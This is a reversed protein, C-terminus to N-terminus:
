PETKPVPHSKKKNKSNRENKKKLPSKEVAVNTKTRQCASTILEECMRTKFKLKVVAPASAVILLIEFGITVNRRVLRFFFFGVLGAV